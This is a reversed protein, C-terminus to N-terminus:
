KCFMVIPRNLNKAKSDLRGLHVARRFGVQELLFQEFQDPKFQISFYTEYMEPMLKARKNYTSFKQPEMLFIGGPALSKYVKHFFRKIGEDGHHLHIWKTLSFGLVVDWLGDDADQDDADEEVKAAWDAVRFEMNHPFVSKSEDTKQPIPLYGHMSSMSRPFYDEYYPLTDLNRLPDADNDELTTTSDEEATATAELHPTSDPLQKLYDTYSLAREGKWTRPSPYAEPALKSYTKLVFKTAQQILASDIDVGQIRLPQYHLGIFITLLGSNCGIDLVRKFRFWHPELFELRGDVMKAHERYQERATPTSLPPTITSASSSAEAMPTASSKKRFLLLDTPCRVKAQQKSKSAAGIVGRVRGEYYRPYNGYPYGVEQQRNKKIRTVTHHKPRPIFDRLHHVPDQHLDLSLTDHQDFGDAQETSYGSHPRNQRETAQSDSWRQQHRNRHPVTPPQDGKSNISTTQTTTSTSRPAAEQGVYGEKDKDSHQVVPKTSPLSPFAAPAKRNVAARKRSLSTKGGITQRPVLSTVSAPVLTRSASSTTATAAKVENSDNRIRKSPEHAQQSQDQARKPPEM